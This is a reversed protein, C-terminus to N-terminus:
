EARLERLEFANALDPERALLRAYRSHYHDNLKFDENKDPLGAIHVEWRMREWLMRIGVKSRGTAQVYQRAFRLLMRYVEPHAAHFAEFRAQITGAQPGFQMEGQEWM